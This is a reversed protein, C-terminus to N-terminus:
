SVGFTSNAVIENISYTKESIVSSTENFGTSSTENFVDNSRHLATLDSDLRNDHFGQNIKQDFYYVTGVYLLLVAAVASFLAFRLSM